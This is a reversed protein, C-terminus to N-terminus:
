GSGCCCPSCCCCERPNFFWTTAGALVGAALLLGDKRRDQWVVACAVSALAFFNSDVHHSIAPWLFSFYTGAFLICPLTQYRECVRRSLFYMLLGTGLSTVFLCIRTALFTVGFLKFFMALWYFTGPGMVEFFDRAFIQGHAVRVAGYVLLGEDTGQLFFGCSRCCTCAPASFLSLIAPM